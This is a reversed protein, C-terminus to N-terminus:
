TGLGGASTSQINNRLYFEGRIPVVEFQMGGVATSQAVSTASADQKKVELNVVVGSYLALEAGAITAPDVPADSPHTADKKRVLQFVTPVNSNANLKPGIIGKVLIIPGVIAPKVIAPLSAPTAAPFNWYELRYENPHNVPDPDAILRYISTSLDDQPGMAASIAPTGTGVSLAMPFGNANFAPTQVILTSTSLSPPWVGTWGAPQAQSSYLPDNACPFTLAANTGVVYGGSANGYLDGFSRGMRVDKGIREVAGRSTEIADVKNELKRTIKANSTLMAFIAISIFLMIVMVVLLEVLSLGDTKRM